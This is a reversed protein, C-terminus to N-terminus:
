HALCVLGPLGMPHFRMVSGVIPMPLIISELTGCEIVSVVLVVVKVRVSPQHRTEYSAQHFSKKLISIPAAAVAAVTWMVSSQAMPAHGM